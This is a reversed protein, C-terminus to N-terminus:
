VIKERDVFNVKDTQLIDGVQLRGNKLKFNYADVLAIVVNTEMEGQYMIKYKKAERLIEFASKKKLVDVLRCMEFYDVNKVGHIFRSLGSLMQGSVADSDNGWIDRITRLTDDLVQLGNSKNRDYAIRKLTGVAKIQNSQTRNTPADTTPSIFPFDYGNKYVISEIQLYLDDKAALSAKFIDLSTPANRNINTKQFLIAEEEVTKRTLVKCCVEKIGETIYRELRHQGDIVSYMGNNRENVLLPMSIDDDWNKALNQVRSKRLDRQYMDDIFLLNVPVMRFKTIM